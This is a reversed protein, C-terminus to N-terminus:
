QPPPTKTTGTRSGQRRQYYDHIYGKMGMEWPHMGFHNAEAKARESTWGDHTIRYVAIILGTRDAGLRCHVFVPQNGATNLIALAQEVQQDTPRGARKLPVNFYRLGAARAEAEESLALGDEERLNVITKVGLQALRKIGNKKPQAGRYLKPNVQHFNPLEEFIVTPEARAQSLVVSAALMLTISLGMSNLLKVPFIRPAIM